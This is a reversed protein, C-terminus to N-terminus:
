KLLGAIEMTLYLAEAMESRTLKRNPEFQGKENSSIIGLMDMIVISAKGEESFQDADTYTLDTPKALEYVDVNLHELYRHIISAAQQRTLQSNANFYTTGTGKMIGAEYLAQIEGGYAKGRVDNFHVRSISKLNAAKALMVAFDARTIAENPFYYNGIAGALVGRKSLEEIYRRNPDNVADVFTRHTNSVEYYGTSNVKITFVDDKVVFPVQVKTHNGEIKYVTANSSAKMEKTPIHIEVQEAFAISQGNVSVFFDFEAEEITLSVAVTGYTKQLDKIPLKVQVGNTATIVLPEQQHLIIDRPIFAILEESYSTFQLDMGEQVFAVSENDPIYVLPASNSENTPRIIGTLDETKTNGHTPQKPQGSPNKWIQEELKQLKSLTTVYQKAENSLSNYYTRAYTITSNSSQRSVNAMYKDFAAASAKAAAIIADQKAYESLLTYVFSYHIVYKKATASLEKYAAQVALVEEKTSSYTLKNIMANVVQAQEKAQKENVEEQVRLQEEAELLKTISQIYALAKVSLANFAARAALIEERSSQITLKDLLAQVVAAQERAINEELENQQEAKVSVDNVVIAAPIALITAALLKSKNDM